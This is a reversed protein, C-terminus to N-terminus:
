AEGAPRDPQGVDAAVAAPHRFYESVLGLGFGEEAALAPLAPDSAAAPLQVAHAVPVLTALGAVIIAPYPHTTFAWAPVRPM